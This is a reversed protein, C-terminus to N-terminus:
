LVWEPVIAMVQGTLLRGTGFLFLFSERRVPSWVTCQLCVTPILSCFNALISRPNQPRAAGDAFGPSTTRPNQPAEDLWWLKSEVFQRTSTYSPLGGLGEVMGGVLWSTSETLAPISPCKRHLDVRPSLARLSTGWWMSSPSCASCHEHPPGLYGM